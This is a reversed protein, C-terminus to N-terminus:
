KKLIKLSEEVDVESNKMQKDLSALAEDKSIYEVEVVHKSQEIKELLKLNKEPNSPQKLFAVVRLQNEIDKSTNYSNIAILSAMNFVTLTITITLITLFSLLKHRSIQRFSDRITYKTKTLFM